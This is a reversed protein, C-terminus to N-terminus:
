IFLPYTLCTQVGFVRRSGEDNNTMLIANTNGEAAGNGTFPQGGM